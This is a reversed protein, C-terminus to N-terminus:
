VSLRKEHRLQGCAAAIDRGRSARIHTNVRADRLIRQFELVDEDHPRGFEIGKVENYRILNVNARLTRALEALERADRPRDNVGRLLIYELTIERGTKEFWRGCAALLENISTYEAWPILQRRVEDNPAHLSLALTVPLDLEDALREIAKPLGVTSITIKRASIGLGWPAAITRVARMVNAFNSLPEGMGMFVVNTIRQTTGDSGTTVEGSRPSGGLRGLRWVQEVIRGASLNGDLGGLGSACFRCGVPCGVQSSICATRRRVTGSVKLDSGSGRADAEGAPIMVCETQRSTDGGGRQGGVVPLALGRGERAGESSHEGVDRGGDRWEILLKRTGDSAKRDAVTDGSVFTMEAAVVERDRKSLNTMLEPDAVGKSYVWELLQRGRFAPMRREECWAAITEPTFEFIHFEPHQM